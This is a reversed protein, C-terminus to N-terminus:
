IKSVMKPYKMRNYRHIFICTDTENLTETASRQAELLQQQHEELASMGLQWSKRRQGREEELLMHLRERYRFVVCYYCMLLLNFWFSWRGIKNGEGIILLIAETHSVLSLSM